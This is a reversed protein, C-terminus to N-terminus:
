SPQKHGKLLSWIATELVHHLHKIHPNSSGHPAKSEHPSLSVHVPLIQELLTASRLVVEAFAPHVNLM